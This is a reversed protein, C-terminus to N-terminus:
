GFFNIVLEGSTVNQDLAKASIRFSRSLELPILGSNMGPTLYLPLDVEAAAAGKALILIGEGTYSVSIATCGAPMSDEIERYASTLITAGSIDHRIKHVPVSALLDRVGM